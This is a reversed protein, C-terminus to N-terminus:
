GPHVALGIAPGGSVFSIRGDMLILDPKVPTGMEVARQSVFSSNDGRLAMRDFLHTLGVTAEFEHFFRRSIPKLTPLYVIKDFEEM